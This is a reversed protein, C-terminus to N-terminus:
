LCRYFNYLACPHPDGGVGLGGGWTGLGLEEEWLCCDHGAEQLAEWASSTWSPMRTVTGGKLCIARKVPQEVGQKQNSSYNLFIDRLNGNQWM